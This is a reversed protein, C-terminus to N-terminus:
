IMAFQYQQLREQLQKSFNWEIEIHKEDYIVIKKLFENVIDETLETFSHNRIYKWVEPEEMCADRKLKEIRRDLEILLRECEEKDDDLKKKEQQYREKSIQKYVYAEYIQVQMKQFRENRANILNKEEYAEATLQEIHRKIAIYVMNMDKQKDIEAQLKFLIYQELFQVNIRNVCGEYRTTYKNGCFFYPNKNREIKLSKHCCGCELKGILPHRKNKVAHKVGRNQQIYEFLTRDIIPEHHNKFVKWESRPKLKSKGSVEPTEYKDYVFDGAYTANRLMQCITSANWEFRGGKPIMTAIGREMKYEIPTKIGEANFRQAIKHSSIGEMTMQFIRRVIAAEDEVILLTHRDNTDKRYGFTCSGNAYIGNEKKIALSSKVKVSIDKCYLDNLLNKFSANLGASKGIYQNSDYRDNIAIFRVGAFPFIQELYAGMEIYDRSFRSLDKVVICNIGRSKVQNLLESVGPRDFNTGTYGDDQFELLEYNQFNKAVYTRLLQRQNVISNSEAELDGDDQSLRMYIAIVIKANM